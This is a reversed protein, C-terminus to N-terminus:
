AAIGLPTSVILLTRAFVKAAANYSDRRHQQEEADAKREALYTNREETTANQSLIRVPTSVFDLHPPPDFTAVGYYVLLPFIVAIGFGIAIQRALMRRDEQCGRRAPKRAAFSHM